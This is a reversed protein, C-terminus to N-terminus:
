QHYRVYIHTLCELNSRSAHTGPWIANKPVINSWRLGNGLKVVPGVCRNEAESFPSSSTIHEISVYKSVRLRAAKVITNGATLYAPLVAKEPWGALKKTRTIDKKEKRM